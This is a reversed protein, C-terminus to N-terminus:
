FQEKATVDSLVQSEVSSTVKTQQEFQESLLINLNTRAGPQFPRLYLSSFVGVCSYKYIYISIYSHIFIHAYIHM